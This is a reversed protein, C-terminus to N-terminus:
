VHHTINYKLALREYGCQRNARTLKGVVINKLYKNWRCLIDFKHLQLQVCHSSLCVSVGTVYSHTHFRKSFLACAAPSLERIAENSMNLALM